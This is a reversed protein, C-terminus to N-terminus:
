LAKRLFQSIIEGPYVNEDWKILVYDGINYTINSDTCIIDNSSHGDDYSKNQTKLEFSKPKEICRKSSKYYGMHFHKCKEACQCCSLSKFELVDNSFVFQRIKQTGRFAAIITSQKVLDEIKAINATTVEFLKISSCRALLIEKLSKLNVIDKGEAVAKDATRKLTGGVGDPAGKGHGPESYNWAFFTAGPYLDNIHHYVLHFMFKNKYQNVPSDSLMHIRHINPNHNKLWEFVPLLHAWVAMADHRNNESLSCFTYPKVTDKESDKERLYLVGTHLTVQQRAGGFHVAQIEENYKCCYNESFDIHILVENDALTKKLESITQYQHAITAVHKFFLPLTNELQLVLSRLSVKIAKLIPKRVTKMKGNKEYSVTEYMWQEYTVIRNPQPLYYEVMKNACGECERLLCKTSYVNCTKMTLFKTLNCCPLVKNEHLKMIMRQVNAHIVCKCTNRDKINAWTVWFPRFRCFTTLSIKYEVTTLFKNHLNKMTDCLLRKQKVQGKLKVFDKKGPCMRSSEDKELFDQVDKKVKMLKASVKRSVSKKYCDHKFFQKSLSLLKHKKLLDPKVIEYYKKKERHKKLNSYKDKLQKIIVESLLLKKKVIKPVQVNKLLASVKAEPSTQNNKNQRQCRKRYREKRRIEQKLSEQLRSIKAYLIGRRRRLQQRRRDVALNRLEDNNQMLEPSPPPTEDLLRALNKRVKVTKDRYTQSNKKWNKKKQRRERSSMASIPKVQGKEKKKLYKIREKERLIELTVPDAKMKERRKRDYEQKKLKAEEKSIKKKRSM